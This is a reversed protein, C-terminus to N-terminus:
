DFFTTSDLAAMIRTYEGQNSPIQRAVSNRDLKLPPELRVTLLARKLAINFTFPFGPDDGGMRGQQFSLEVHVASVDGDTRIPGHWADISLVQALVRKQNNM